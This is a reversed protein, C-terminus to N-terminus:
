RGRPGGDQGTAAALVMTEGARVVVSGDAQKAMKGSEFTLEQDGVTVSVTAVRPETTTAM